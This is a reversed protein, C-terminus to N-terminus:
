WRPTRFSHRLHGGGNPVSWFSCFAGKLGFQTSGVRGGEPRIPVGGPYDSAQKLQQTVAGLDSADRRLNGRYFGFGVKLNQGYGQALRM